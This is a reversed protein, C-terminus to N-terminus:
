HQSAVFRLIFLTKHTMKMLMDNTKLSKNNQKVERQSKPSSRIELYIHARQDNKILM